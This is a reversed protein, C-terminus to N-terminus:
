FTFDEFLFGYRFNKLKVQLQFIIIARVNLFWNSKFSKDQQNLAM